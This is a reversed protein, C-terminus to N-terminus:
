QLGFGQSNRIAIELRDRLKGRSQYSPLCLMNFCTHSTPLNMSDDGARQLVFQLKGLGGVPARDCGTAFLLLARKDELSFSHAVQWFHVVTADDPTFGDYKTNAQLAAFDLHPTGVALVQWTLLSWPHHPPTSHRRRPGAV